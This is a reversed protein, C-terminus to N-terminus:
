VVARGRYLYRGAVRLGPNVQGGEGLPAIGLKMEVALTTELKM